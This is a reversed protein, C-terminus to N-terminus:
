MPSCIEVLVGDLDRVYSVKQGWPKDVPELVPLAGAAVAKAFAGPVDPTTLALEVGPPAKERSNEAFGGPILARALEAQCFSISVGGADAEGYGGSEHLFRRTLGFAAEYFSLARAVDSVYLIVYSLKM